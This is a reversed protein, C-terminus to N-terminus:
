NLVPYMKMAHYKTLRLSLRTKLTRHQYMMTLHNLWLRSIIFMSTLAAQINQFYSTTYVGHCSESLRPWSPWNGPRLELGQEESYSLPATNCRLTLYPLRNRPRGLVFVEVTLSQTWHFYTVQWHACFKIIPDRSGSVSAKFAGILKTKALTPTTLSSLRM